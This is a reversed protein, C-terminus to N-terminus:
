RVGEYIVATRFIVSVAFPKRGEGYDDRWNERKYDPQQARLTTM